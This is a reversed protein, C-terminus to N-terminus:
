LTRTAPPYEIWVNYELSDSLQIYILAVELPESEYMNQYRTLVDLKASDVTDHSTSSPLIGIQSLIQSQGDLYSSIIEQNIFLYYAKFRRKTTPPAHQRIDFLGGNYVYFQNEYVFSGENIIRKWPPDCPAWYLYIGESIRNATWRLVQEIFKHLNSSAYFPNQKGESYYVVRIWQGITSPAVFTSSTDEDVAFQNNFLSSSLTNVREMELIDEKLSYNYLFMQVNDHAMIYRMYVIPSGVLVVEEKRFM